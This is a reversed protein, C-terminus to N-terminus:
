DEVTLMLYFDIGLMILDVGHCHSGGVLCTQEKVFSSLNLNRLLLPSNQVDMSQGKAEEYGTLFGLTHFNLSM